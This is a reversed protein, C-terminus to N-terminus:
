GDDGDEPAAPAHSGASEEPAAAAQRSRASAVLEQEIDSLQYGWGVLAELYGATEPTPNRWCHVGTADEYAGLVLALAIVQARAASAKVIAAHVGPAARRSKPDKPPGLLERAMAHRAGGRGVMGFRMLRSDSRAFEHLTFLLAGDPAKPRALFERLWARRETEAARWATNGALVKKREAAAAETSQGVASERYRKHGNGKPDACYWVEAAKGNYGYRLVVVNGPCKEHTRSTLRAGGAGAWSSILNEYHQPEATVAIGRKKLKAAHADIVAQRARDDRASRLNHAFRVPGEKAAAALAKVVKPDDEFEAIAAAQELDLDHAAAAAVAVKSAAVRRAADVQGQPLRTRKQVDGAPVNLEFLTAVAQAEEAATLATRRKNVTFQGIIREIVAGQGTGEDGTVILPVARSARIAALVRRQGDWVRIRGDATRVALVPVLVGDERVSALFEKDLQPDLRVNADVLLEEPKLHYTWPALTADIGTMQDESM